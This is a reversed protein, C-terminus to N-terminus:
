TCTGVTTCLGNTYQKCGCTTPATTTIGVNGSAVYGTAQVFGIVQLKQVPAQTGIGVNGGVCLSDASCILGNMTTGIAVNGSVQLKNVPATTNIGVNGVSNVMLGVGSATFMEYRSTSEDWKTIFKNTGNVKYNIGAIGIAGTDYPVSPPTFNATWRASNSIRLEDINGNVYQSAGDNYAGILAGGTFDGIATTDNQTAGIQVGDQFFMYNGSSKTLAFHYWTGTNLTNANATVQINFGSQYQEFEWKYVGAVNRLRLYVINNNNTTRQSYFVDYDSTTPLAAPKYRFSITFDNSGYALLSSDPITIYDGTGDLLLSATGGWPSTTSTNANGTATASVAGVGTCNSDIFSTGGNTGDFHFLLSANADCGGITSSTTNLDQYVPTSGAISLKNDPSITGIGVNGNDYISSDVFASGNSKPVYGSTNVSGGGGAVGITGVIGSKTCTIGDGVCDLNFVVGLNTGENRLQLPPDGALATNCFTCFLLAMVMRTLM